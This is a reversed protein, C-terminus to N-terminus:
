EIGSIIQRVAHVFAVLDTGQAPVIHGGNHLIEVRKKADCMQALQASQGPYDVDFSSWVHLTPIQIPYQVDKAQLLQLNRRELEHWNCPLTGCLFIACKFPLRAQGNETRLLLTAALAAGLSFGMIADFPGHEAVYTALDDVAKLVSEASGDFYSYCTQQDGFM